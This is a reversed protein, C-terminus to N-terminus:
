ILAPLDIPLVDIAIETAAAMPGTLDGITTPQGFPDLMHLTNTTTSTESDFVSTIGYLNLGDNAWAIADLGEAVQEGRPKVIYSENGAFADYRDHSKVDLGYLATNGPANPDDHVHLWLMQGKQIPVEMHLDMDTAAIVRVDDVYWGEGSGAQSAFDFRLRVERGAFQTLEDSLFQQFGGSPDALTSAVNSALTGLPTLTDADLVTVIATDIGDSTDLFYNFSTYVTEWETVGTLDIVPSTLMGSHDDLLISEIKSEVAAPFQDFNAVPLM